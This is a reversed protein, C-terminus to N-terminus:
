TLDPLRGANNKRGSHRFNGAFVVDTLQFPKGGLDIKQNAAEGTLVETLCAEGCPDIASTGSQDPLDKAKEILSRDLPDYEFVNREHQL